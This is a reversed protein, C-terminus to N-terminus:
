CRRCTGGTANGNGNGNGNGGNGNGNGNGNNGGSTTTAGGSTTTTGGASTTTTGGASTTTTGGASTTTTGGASTTTTGGASTTTTGGASTTTTGGASTTTTGGASTTTTGGASTTTTGGTSSASTSNAWTSAPNNTYVTRRAELTVPGWEFFLFDLTVAYSVRLVAYHTGNTQVYHNIENVLLDPNLGTLRGEVTDLIVDDAPMPYITAQRAGAALASRLDADAFFLRGVQTLGIIMLFMVPAILAFEVASIGKRDRLLTGPRRM